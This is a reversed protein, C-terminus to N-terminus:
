GSLRLACMRRAALGGGIFSLSLGDALQGVEFGGQVAERCEEIRLALLEPIAFEGLPDFALLKVYPDGVIETGTVDDLFLCNKALFRFENLVMPGPSLQPATM